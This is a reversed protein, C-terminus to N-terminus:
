GGDGSPAPTPTNLGSQFTRVASVGANGTFLFTIASGVFGGLLAMIGAKDEILPTAAVYVLLLSGGVAMIVATIYSALLKITDSQM